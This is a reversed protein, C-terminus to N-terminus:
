YGFYFEGDVTSWQYTLIGMTTNANGTLTTEPMQCTLTDPEDISVAVTVVTLDLNVVSDCDSQITLLTDSSIGTEFYPITGVWFTDGLCITETLNMEIPMLVTLDLMVLSDCGFQNELLVEYMGSMDFVEAGVMYEEEHCITTIIDTTDPDLVTLDLHVISDCGGASLITDIFFGTTNYATTGILFEGGVCVTDEVNAIPPPESITVIICGTDIDGCFDPTPGYLDSYIDTPLISTGVVPLSLSDELFYSLGCVQYTGAPYAMLDTLTDYAILNGNSFITYTYGYEATDPVVAGYMPSPTLLLASDGICANVDPEFSLNGADADCCEFGTQDCLLIEFDFITGGQFQATNEIQMCWQGNVVGSNFDELCGSYPLYTGTMMANPWPCFTPCNDFTCPLDCGNITDPYCDEACPVFLIDWTSLPTWNTCNGTTGTLEVTTGNPSTLTLDLTGIQDSEFFFPYVACGKGQTPSTM